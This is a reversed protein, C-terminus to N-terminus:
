SSQTPLDAFLEHINGDPDAFFATRQGWPMDAPQKIPKAGRNLLSEYERDLDSPDDVRFALEFCHGHRNTRYEEKETADAMVDHTSLAFRVGDNTFEVYTGDMHMMVDFGMIDKYFAMMEDFRSTIIGIMDIRPKVCLLMVGATM